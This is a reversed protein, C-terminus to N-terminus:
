ASFKLRIENFMAVVKEQSNTPNASLKFILKEAQRVKRYADKTHYGADVLLQHLHSMGGIQELRGIIGQMMLWQQFGGRPKVERISRLENVQNTYDIAYQSPDGDQRFINESLFRNYVKGLFRTDMQYVDELSSFTAIRQVTKSNLLRIEARMRNTYGNDPQQEYGKDYFIGQKYKSGLRYGSPYQVTNGMRKGRIIGWVPQYAFVKDELERDKAIDIRSVINHNFSSHVGVSNLYKEVDKSIGKIEKPNHILEGKIKSPNYQIILGHSSITANVGEGNHFAKEGYIHKGNCNFLGHQEIELEGQRKRNPLIELHRTDSIKFDQTFLRIKDIGAPNTANLAVLSRNNYMSDKAKEAGMM